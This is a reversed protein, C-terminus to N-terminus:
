RCMRSTTKLRFDDVFVSVAYLIDANKWYHIVSQEISTFLNVILQRTFITNNTILERMIKKYFIADTFIFHITKRPQKRQTIVTQFLYSSYSSGCLNTGSLWFTTRDCAM